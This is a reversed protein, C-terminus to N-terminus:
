EPAGRIVMARPMAVNPRVAIILVGLLALASGIAMRLDFHDDTIAIGLGITFLPAMLTLPAVLNAEYRQILGYYVTHGFVSVLLAAFLLIAVFGWGAEVATAFQDREFAASLAGLLVMSSFGVWAQLRLPRIGEMQKMMIAGLAGAFASGAVFLLGISIDLAAPDWMVVMVGAFTLAIGLRRRWRIKEGLMVISLITTMPVSLQTVIAAASPSATQLGVLFLAFGGGGMLIGVVLVRWRPRPIPWLWPAVCLAITAFRMASFFLPPVSMDAVAVRSVVINIAWVLNVLVFLAFDPLSMAPAMYAPERRRFL